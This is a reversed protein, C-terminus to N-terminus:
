DAGRQRRLTRLRFICDIAVDVRKEGPHGDLLFDSLQRLEGQASGGSRARIAGAILLHHALSFYTRQEIRDACLLGILQLLNGDVLGPQMNRKEESEIHDVALM